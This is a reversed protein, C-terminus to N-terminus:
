PAQLPNATQQAPHHGAKVYEAGSLASSLGLKRNRIKPWAM